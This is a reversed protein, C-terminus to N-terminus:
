ASISIASANLSSSIYASETPQIYASSGSPYTLIKVQPSESYYEQANSGIHCIHTTTTGSEDKYQYTGVISSIGDFASVDNATTLPITNAIAFEVGLMAGNVGAPLSAMSGIFTQLASVYASWESLDSEVSETTDEASAELANAEMRICSALFATCVIGVWVM